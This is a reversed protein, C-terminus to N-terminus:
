LVAKTVLPAITKAGWTTFRMAIGAAILLVGVVIAGGAWLRWWWLKALAESHKQHWYDREGLATDKDRAQKNRDDTLNKVEVQLTNVNTTAEGLQARVQKESGEAKDAREANLRNETQVGVIWDRLEADQQLTRIVMGDKVIPKPDGAVAAAAALMFLAFIRM